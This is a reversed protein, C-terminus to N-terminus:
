RRSTPQGALTASALEAPLQREGALAKVRRADAPWRETEGNAMHVRLVLEATTYDLDVLAPDRALLHDLQQWAEEARGRALLFEIWDRSTDLMRWQWVSSEPAQMAARYDAEAAAVEGLRASRVARALLGYSFATTDLARNQEETLALPAASERWPDPGAKARVALYLALEGKDRLAKTDNGNRLKRALEFGAAATSAAVDWRRQAIELRARLIAAVLRDEDTFESRHLDRAIEDLLAEAERLRGLGTMASARRELYDLREVADASANLLARLRETTHLAAEHRLMSSQIYAISHLSSILQRLAGYTEFVTACREFQELAEAHRGERMALHAMSNSVRAVAVEDMLEVFLERARVFDRTAENARGALTAAIGRLQLAQALERPSQESQLLAVVEDVLPEWGPEALRRMMVVRLLQLRAFLLPQSSRDLDQRWREAKERAAAVRGMELDLEIELIGAEPHSRSAAPLRSIQLLAGEFDRVRIAQLILEYTENSSGVLGAGSRGLRQNLEQVALRGAALLDANSGDARVVAGGRDLSDLEVIWEAGAQHVRTAVLQEASLTRSLRALDRAAPADGVRVLVTEIPVVKYGQRRLGEAVLAMLGIRAWTESGEPLEAPLVWTLGSGADPTPRDAASPWWWAVLAVSVLLATVWGFGARRPPSRLGTVAPPPDEPGAAALAPDAVDEGIMTAPPMGKDHEDVMEVAGIWHYGFGPVTRLLRQAKGDDAVMRRAAAITQALQNDSVNSRSWVREILEDRGVARDRHEILCILCDLARRPADVENEGRTLLRASPDLMFGDFRFHM